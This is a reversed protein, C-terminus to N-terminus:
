LKTERGCQQCIHSKKFFLESLGWTCAGFALRECIDQTKKVDHRTDKKCSRCYRTTTKVSEGGAWVPLKTKSLHLNLLDDLM